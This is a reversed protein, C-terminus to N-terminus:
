EWIAALNGFLVRERDDSAWVDYDAIVSQEIVVRLTPAHQLLARVSCRRQNRFQVHLLSLIIRLISSAGGVM